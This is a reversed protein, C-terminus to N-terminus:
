VDDGNIISDFYDRIHKHNDYATYILVHKPDAGNKILLKVCGLHGAYGAAVLGSNLGEISNAGKEFLKTLLDIDNNEAAYHIIVGDDYNPDFRNDNLFSDINEGNRYNAIVDYNFETNDAIDKVLTNDANTIVIKRSM